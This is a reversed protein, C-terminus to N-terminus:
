VEPEELPEGSLVASAAALAHARWEDMATDDHTEWVDLLQLYLTAGAVTMMSEFKGSNASFFNNLERRLEERFLKRFVDEMGNMKTLLGRSILERIARSRDIGHMSAYDEVDGLLAESCRFPVVKDAM